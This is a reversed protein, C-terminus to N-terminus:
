VVVGSAPPVSAAAKVQSLLELLGSRLVQSDGVPRSRFVSGEAGRGAGGRGQSGPGLTQPLARKLVSDTCVAASSLGLPIFRRSVTSYREQM